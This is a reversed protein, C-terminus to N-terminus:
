DDDREREEKDRERERERERERGNELESDGKVPPSIDTAPAILGKGAAGTGAPGVVVVRRRTSTTESRGKFGASKQLVTM